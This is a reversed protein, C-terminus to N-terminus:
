KLLLMKRTTSYKIGRGDTGTADLRYMYVGSALNSGDFRIDHAGDEFEVSSLPRAVEQGLINYVTLSVRAPMALEFSITTTPNFPNPYNQALRIDTPEAAYRGSPTHQLDARPMIDPNPHLYPVSDLMKVGTCIVNGCSWRNTDIPGAFAANILSDVIYFVTSDTTGAVAGNCGLYRDVSDVISRVTMGNFPGVISSNDYILNGLGPPFFGSDSAAINLKLTLQEAFLSNNHKDPPLRKQAKLIPKGTKDFNNLPHPPRTHYLPVKTDKVLSKTVDKFKSLYVTHAGKPDSNTGVTITVPTQMIGGYIDEGVNVLNPMPLQPQNLVYASDPVTGKPGKSKPNAPVLWEYTVKMLKGKSGLGRVVVVTGSDFSGIAGGTNKVNTNFCFTDVCVTTPMSFKLNLGNAIGPGPAMLHFEWAVKDPKCKISKRKGKLDKADAWDRYTGTRYLVQGASDLEPPPIGNSVIRDGGYFTGLGNQAVARFHIRSNLPLSSPDFSNSVNMSSGAAVSQPTTSTGYSKTAGYEFWTSTSGAASYLSGPELNGGVPAHVIAQFGGIAVGFTSVVPLSNGSLPGQAIIYVWWTHMSPPGPYTVQTYSTQTKMNVDFFSGSLDSKLRVTGSYYSNLSPWAFTMPFLTTDSEDLAIGVQYTDIQAPSTFQTIDLILNGAGTRFMTTGGGPPFPPYEIEGLAPDVGSTATPDVGFNLGFSKLGGEDIVFPVTFRPTDALASSTFDISGRHATNNQGIAFSTAIVFGLFLWLTSKM